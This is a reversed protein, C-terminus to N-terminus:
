QIERAVSPLLFFICTFDVLASAMGLLAEAVGQLSPPPMLFLQAGKEEKM